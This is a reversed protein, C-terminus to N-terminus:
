GDFGGEGGFDLLFADELARIERRRREDEQEKQRMKKLLFAKKDTESQFPDQMSDFNNEFISM